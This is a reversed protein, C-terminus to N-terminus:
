TTPLPPIRNDMLYRKLRKKFTSPKKIEKIVMPIDKYHRYSNPRYQYKTLMSLGVGPPHPGLQHPGNHRTTRNHNIKSLMRYALAASQSSRLIKHSLKASALQALQHVSPWKMEKLLSTKSWRKTRPGLVTRAAELQTSQLTKLMYEPASGWVETGYELKSMLIGSALMRMQKESASKKLLKLMNLRTKMQKSISQPGDVLFYRWSLTEELEIGLIKVKASHIIDKPQAAIRADLRRAPKCTLVMLKTKDPNLLLKNNSMYESVRRMADDLSEQINMDSNKTVLVFNDNIYTLSKPKDTSEEHSIQISDSDFILPLDLTFIIYLICSLASGQIVSRPGAHLPPSTFTEVQVSQTRNELYSQMLKMSHKDLGIAEMKQLLITHDVLDYALSQDMILAIADEGQEMKTSWTDILTALATATGHNAIGGHHQHPVLHNTEM